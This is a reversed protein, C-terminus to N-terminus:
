TRVPWDPKINIYPIESCRIGFEQKAIKVLAKHVDKIEKYSRHVDWQIKGHKFSFTYSKLNLSFPEKIHLLECM